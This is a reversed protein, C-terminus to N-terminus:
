LILSNSAPIRLEELIQNLHVEETLERVAAEEQTEGEDCLGAVFEVSIANLPPRFQKVLLLETTRHTQPYRITACLFVSDVHKKGNIAGTTVREAMEWKRNKGKSDIYTLRRLRLWKFSPTEVVESTTIRPFADGDVM